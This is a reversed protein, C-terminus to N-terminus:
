LRKRIKTSRMLNDIQTMIKNLSVCEDEYNLTFSIHNPYMDGPTETVIVVQSTRLLLEDTDYCLCSENQVSITTIRDIDILDNCCKIIISRMFNVIFIIVEKPFFIEIRESINQLVWAYYVIHM